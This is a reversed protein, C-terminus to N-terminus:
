RNGKRWQRLKTQFEASLDAYETQAETQAETCMGIITEATPMGLLLALALTAAKLHRNKM